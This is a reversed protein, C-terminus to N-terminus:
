YLFEDRGNTTIIWTITDATLYPDLEAYATALSEAHAPSYALIALIQKQWRDGASVSASSDRIGRLKDELLFKAQEPPFPADFPYAVARTVSVGLPVNAMTVLLDTMAGPQDYIIQTETKVLTARECRALVEYAFVESLISSGGANGDRLIQQSGATLTTALEDRYPESFEITTTVYTPEITALEDDLLGCGGEITGFGPLPVEIGADAPEAAADALETAADAASADALDGAASSSCAAALLAFLLPIKATM